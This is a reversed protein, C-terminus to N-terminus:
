PAQLGPSRVPHGQGDRNTLNLSDQRYSSFATTRLTALHQKVPAFEKQFEKIHAAVHFPQVDVAQGIGPAACWDPSAGMVVKSGFRWHVAAFREALRNAFNGPFVQYSFRENAHIILGPV